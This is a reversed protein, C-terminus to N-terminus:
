ESVVGGENQANHASQDESRAQAAATKKNLKDLFGQIGELSGFQQVFENFGGIEARVDSPLGKYIAEARKVAENATILDTPLLTTDMYVGQAKALATTDGAAARKVINEVLCADKHSQIVAYMDTVGAEVLKRNGDPEIELQYEVKTKCGVPSFARGSRMHLADFFNLKQSQQSM